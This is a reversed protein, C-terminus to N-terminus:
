SIVENKNGIIPETQVSHLQSSIRNLLKQVNVPKAVFELGCDAAYKLKDPSSDGSVIIIPIGPRQQQLSEITKFGNTSDPLRLDCLVIDPGNADLSAAAETAGGAESVILGCNELLLRTGTRVAKDDDIVLIKAGKVNTLDSIPLEQSEPTGMHKVSANVIPLEMFFRTGQGVESEMKITGGILTALRNVISLGLGLGKQRDREPNRLQYFEEWINEHESSPIGMGTDQISIKWTDSGKNISIVVSGSETYKVANDLLNRTLREFLYKDTILKGVAMKQHILELGKSTALPEYESILRAISANIDFETPEVDVVSADLKSIDLLSDLETTLDAMTLNMREAITSSREDLDRLTLAASLMSLTNLPQKLDHSAAALFRTKAANASQEALLAAEIQASVAFSDMFASYVDRSSAYLVGGLAVVLFIISGIKLSSLSEDASFMWVFIVSGLIPLVFGMFVPRYGHSTVITGAVLGVMIMSFAARATEDLASFLLGSSALVLGNILSLRGALKLRVDVPKDQQSPLKFLITSRLVQMFIATSAWVLIQWLPVQDVAFMAIVAIVVTMVLPVRVAQKRLAELLAQNCKEQSYKYDYSENTM